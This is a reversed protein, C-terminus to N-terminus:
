HVCGINHVLVQDVEIYKHLTKCLLMEELLTAHRQKTCLHPTEEAEDFMINHTFPCLENDMIYIFIIPLLPRHHKLLSYLM